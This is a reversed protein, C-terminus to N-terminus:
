ALLLLAESVAEPDAKQENGRMASIAARAEVLRARGAAAVALTRTDFSWSRLDRLISEKARADGLRALAIRAQWAFRGRGIFSGFARRVLGARAAELGLEGVLEIAAAEDEPERARSRSNVAAVLVEAARPHRTHALLIAAALRVDRAPDDLAELAAEFVAQASPAATDASVREEAARLAVYRVREDPDKFAGVLVPLAREGSLRAFAILAQFRLAPLDASLADLVASQLREDDRECLEGIAVLAMERVHPDADGLLPLVSEAASRVRADALALAARARVRPSGDSLAGVLAEGARASSGQAALLALDQVASLRVEPKAHAADRLAADL